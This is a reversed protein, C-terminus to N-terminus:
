ARFAVFILAAGVLIPALPAYIAWIGAAILSTGLAAIGDRWYSNLLKTM